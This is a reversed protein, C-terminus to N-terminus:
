KGGRLFLVWMVDVMAHVTASAMVSNTKLFVFGYGLGAITAVGAYPWNPVDMGLARKNVHALGFIVSAVILAGVPQLRQRLLNQIADRFLIEEIVGISFFIMPVAVIVAVPIAVTLPAGLPNARVIKAIGVTTLGTALTLTLLTVGLAGFTAATPYLDAKKLSLDCKLDFRRWGSLVILAYIIGAYVGLPLASPRASGFQVRLWNINVIKLEILLWIWLVVAFNIILDTGTCGEDSKPGTLALLLTPMGFYVALRVFPDLGWQDVAVAMISYYALLLSPLCWIRLPRDTLWAGVRIRISKKMMAVFTVALLVIGIIIVAIGM